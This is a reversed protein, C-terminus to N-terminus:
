TLMAMALSVYWLHTTLIARHPYALNATILTQRAVTECIASEVSINVPAIRDRVVVFEPVHM